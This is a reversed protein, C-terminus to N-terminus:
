PTTDSNRVIASELIATESPAPDADSNEVTGARPGAEGSVAIGAARPWAERFGEQRPQGITKGVPSDQDAYRKPKAFLGVTITLIPELVYPQILVYTRTGAREKIPIIEHKSASFKEESIHFRGWVKQPKTYYTPFQATFLQVRKTWYDDEPSTYEEQSSNIM